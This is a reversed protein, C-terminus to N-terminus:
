ARRLTILNIEPWSILRFPVGVAALGCSVNIYGNLVPYLGATYKYFLAALNLRHETGPVSYQGGHTHGALYLNFGAAMAQRVGEPRHNLLIQYDGERKEPGKVLSFDLIDPDDDPHRSGAIFGRFRDDLGVLSLPLDPLSCRRDVLMNLGIERLIRAIRAPDAFHDHNGLVAHVGLPVKKLHREFPEKFLYANNPNRDVLDGTIVALDPKESAAAEMALDLERVTSWLGIHIDSLQALKFGDLARPLSPVTLTLRRVAPGFYQRVAAFGCFGALGFFGANAATKLFDRRGPDAPGAPAGAPGPRRSFRGALRFLGKLGAALLWAAACAPLILLAHLTQWAIAPRAAASLFFSSFERDRQWYLLTALWAANFVIFVATIIKRYRPSSLRRRWVFWSVIQALLLVVILM